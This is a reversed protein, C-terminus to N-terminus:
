LARFLGTSIPNFEKNVCKKVMVVCERKLQDHIRPLRNRFPIMYKARRELSLYFKVLQTDTYTTQVPCRYTLLPIIMLKRQHFKENEGSTTSM